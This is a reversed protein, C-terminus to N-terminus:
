RTLDEEDPLKRAYLWAKDAEEAAHEYVEDIPLRADVYAAAVMASYLQWWKNDRILKQKHLHTM